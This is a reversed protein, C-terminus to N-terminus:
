WCEGKGEWSDLEWDGVRRGLRDWYAVWCRERHVVIDTERGDLGILEEEAKGHGELNVVAVSYLEVEAEVFPFPNEEEGEETRFPDWNTREVLCSARPVKM